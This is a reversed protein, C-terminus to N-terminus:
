RGTGFADRQEPKQRKQALVKVESESIRELRNPGMYWINRPLLRMTTILSVWIMRCAKRSWTKEPRGSVSSVLIRWPYPLDAM